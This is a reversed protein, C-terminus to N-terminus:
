ANNFQLLELSISIEEPYDEILLMPQNLNNFIVLIEIGSSSLIINKIQEINEENAEVFHFEKQTIFIDNHNQLDCAVLISWGGKLVNLSTELLNNSEGVFTGDIKNHCLDSCASDYLKILDVKEGQHMSM